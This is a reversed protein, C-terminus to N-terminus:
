QKEGMLADNWDIKNFEQPTSYGPIKIEVDARKEVTLRRALEFAAAQGVWSSDRDGFIVVRKIGEPPNWSRMLGESIAAWVPLGYLANASMATEVGEAIGLVEGTPEALRIAGGRALSGPMMKRPQEVEAKRGDQTLWTRHISNPKGDPGTFMALMAPHRTVPEGRYPLSFVTRLCSPRSKLDRATLYLDVPDGEQVPYSDAWLANKIARATKTDIPKTHRVEINGIIKDVQMAAERFDWGKFKMLLTLGTGGGCQSCIYTGNGDTNIFRFRDKGGCMPCPHHKGNVLNAALGFAPLIGHWRGRAADWTRDRLM